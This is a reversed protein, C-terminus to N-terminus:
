ASVVAVALMRTRQFAFATVAAYNATIIRL